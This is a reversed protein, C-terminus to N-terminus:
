QRSPRCHNLTDKLNISKKLWIEYEEYPEYANKGRSMLVCDKELKKREEDTPIGIALKSVGTDIYEM